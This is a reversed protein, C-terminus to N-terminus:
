SNIFVTTKVEKTDFSISEGEDTTLRVRDNEVYEVKEVNDIQALKRNTKKSYVFAKM